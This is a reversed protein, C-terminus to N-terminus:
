LGIECRGGMQRLQAFQPLRATLDDDCACPLLECLKQLDIQLICGLLEANRFHLRM